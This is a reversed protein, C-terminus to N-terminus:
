KTAGGGRGGVEGTYLKSLSKGFSIDSSSNFQKNSGGKYMCGLHKICYLTRTRTRTRERERERRGKRRAGREGGRESARELQTTCARIHARGCTCVCLQFGFLGAVMLGFLCVFSCPLLCVLLCAFLRVLLGVLWGFILVCRVCSCVFLLCAILCVLLCVLLCVFLM